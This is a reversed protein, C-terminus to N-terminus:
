ITALDPNATTHLIVEGYHNPLTINKNERVLGQCTVDSEYAAYSITTDIYLHIRGKESRVNYTFRLVKTDCPWEYELDVQTGDTVCLVGPPCLDSVQYRIPAIEIVENKLDEIGASQANAVTFFTLFSLFFKAAM